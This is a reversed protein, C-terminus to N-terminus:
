YLGTFLGQYSVLACTTRGIVYHMAISTGTVHWLWSYVVALDIVNKLSDILHIEYRTCAVYVIAFM